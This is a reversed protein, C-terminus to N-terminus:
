QDAPIYKEGVDGGMDSECVYRQKVGQGKKHIETKGPEVHM